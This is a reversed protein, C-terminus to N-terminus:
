GTPRTRLPVRYERKDLASHPKADAGSPRASLDLRRLEPMAALATLTESSIATGGLSLEQLKPLRLVIRAGADTISTGALNLVELSRLPELHNLGNDTIQAGSLKLETLGTLESLEALREDTTDSVEQGNLVNRGGSLELHRLGKMKSLAARLEGPWLRVCSLNLTVLNCDSILPLAGHGFDTGYLNLHRLNPYDRLHSLGRPSLEATRSDLFRLAELRALARLDDDSFGGGNGFTASAGVVSFIADRPLFRLRWDPAQPPTAYEMERGGDYMQDSYYLVVPADKFQAVLAEQLSANHLLKTWYGVLLCLVTLVAFFARLSFRFWRPGTM